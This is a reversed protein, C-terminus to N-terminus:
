PKKQHDPFALAAAEPSLRARIRASPAAGFSASLLTWAEVPYGKLLLQAAKAFSYAYAYALAQPFYRRMFHLRGRHKFYLSFPSAIRDLTASGIATGARHYVIAGPCYLLPLPGRRMAWDVEEYYLFYDEPMLGAQDLFRRSAVMSAGTIFDMAEPAPTPTAAHSAGLGINGTIGTKRNITGGDIQITDPKDVYLVRGGMLAFGQEPAPQSAFAQASRPPTVSDPNLIWFRDLGAMAALCVLGRNVGAAFGANIGTEILHLRHPGANAGGDLALPKPCPSLPFPIDEGPSYSKAGSAWDRLLPLTADTSANDVIAIDLAVAESALLSELCDLIVDAANFTVIVVGLRPDPM